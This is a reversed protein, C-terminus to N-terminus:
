KKKSNGVSLPCEKWLGRDNEKAEKEDIKFQQSLKIDPKITMIKAYGNSILYENVFIKDIYVFRLLRGYKDTESVDKEIRITKGEVLRKNELYSENAFCQEGTKKGTTDRYFEPSNIGIYRVKKNGEIEITDGDIVRIVRVSQKEYPTIIITPAPVDIPILSIKPLSNKKFFLQLVALIIVLIYITQKKNM